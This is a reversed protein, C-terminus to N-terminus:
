LQFLLSNKCESSSNLKQCPQLDFWLKEIKMCVHFPPGLWELTTLIVIHWHWKTRLFAETGPKYHEVEVLVGCIWNLSNYNSTLDWPLLNEELSFFFTSVVSFFLLGALIWCEQFTNKLLIVCCPLFLFILIWHHCFQIFAEMWKLSKRKLEM